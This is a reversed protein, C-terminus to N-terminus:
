PKVFEDKDVTQLLKAEQVEVEMFKKGEREVVVKKPLKVGDVELYSKIIRDESVEKGTGVDYARSEVKALLGTTKDFYLNVDRHGKSSLRVGVAEKGDVKTEGLPALKLEKDELLLRGVRLMYSAEQLEELIKGEAEKTKGNVSLWGTKGNFVTVMSVKEGKVEMQLSERYMGPTGTLLEQTFPIGGQLELTGKTRSRSGKYKQVKDAGGMAKIAKDIVARPSEPKDEARVPAQVVILALAAIFCSRM